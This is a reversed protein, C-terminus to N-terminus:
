ASKDLAPESVHTFKHVDYAHIYWQFLGGLKGATVSGPQSIVSQPQALMHLLNLRHMHGVFSRTFQRRTHYM